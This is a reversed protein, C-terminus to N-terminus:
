QEVVKGEDPFVRLHRDDSCTIDFAGDDHKVIARPIVPKDIDSQYVINFVNDIDSSTLETM